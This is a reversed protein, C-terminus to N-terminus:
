LNAPIIRRRRSLIRTEGIQIYGIFGCAGCEVRELNTVQTTDDNIIRNDKSRHITQAEPRRCRPCRRSM